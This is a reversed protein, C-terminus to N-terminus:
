TLAVIKPKVPVTGAKHRLRPPLNKRKKYCDWTFFITRQAHTMDSLTTNAIHKFLAEGNDHPGVKGTKPNVVAMDHLDAFHPEHCINNMRGSNKKTDETLAMEQCLVQSRLTDTYRKLFHDQTPNGNSDVRKLTRLVIYDALQCSLKHGAKKLIGVMTVPLPTANNDQQQRNNDRNSIAQGKLTELDELKTSKLIAQLATEATGFEQISKSDSKSQIMKRELDALVQNPGLADIHRSKLLVGDDSRGLILCDHDQAKATHFPSRQWGFGFTPALYIATGVLFMIPSLILMALRYALTRMTPSLQSLAGSLLSTVFHYFLRVVGPRFYGYGNSLIRRGLHIGQKYFFQYTSEAVVCGLCNGYLSIDKPAIGHPFHASKKLLARVVAVGCKKLDEETYAKGAADNVSPYNVMHITMGTKDAFELLEALRSEASLQRGVFMVLHKHHQKPHSPNANQVHYVHAQMPEGYHNTATVMTDRISLNADKFVQQEHHWNMWNSHTNPKNHHKRWADYDLTAGQGDQVLKQHYEVLNKVGKEQLWKDQHYLTIHSIGSRLRRIGSSILNYSPTLLYTLVLGTGMVAAHHISYYTALSPAYFLLLVPAWLPCFYMVNLQFLSYGQKVTHTLAGLFNVCAHRILHASRILFRYALTLM